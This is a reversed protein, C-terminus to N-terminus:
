FVESVNEIKIVRIKILFMILASIESSRIGEDKARASKHLAENNKWEKQIKDMAREYTIRQEDM